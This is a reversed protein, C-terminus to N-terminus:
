RGSRPAGGDAEPHLRDAAHGSPRPYVLCLERFIPAGPAQYDGSLVEAVRSLEMGFSPVVCLEETGFRQKLKSLAQRLLAIDLAGGKLPLSPGNPDEGMVKGVSTTLELGDERQIIRPRGPKAEDLWAGFAREDRLVLRFAVQGQPHLLYVERGEDDLKSLLPAVQALFTEKGPVLLLPGTPAVAGARLAAEGLLDVRAAGEPVEAGYVEAKPVRYAEERDGEGADRAVAAKLTPLPVQSLSRLPPAKEGKCSLLLGVAAFM